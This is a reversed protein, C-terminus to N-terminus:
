QLRQPQTSPGRSMAARPPFTTMNRVSTWSELVAQAGDYLTGGDLPADALGQSRTSPPALGTGRSDRLDRGHRLGVQHAM